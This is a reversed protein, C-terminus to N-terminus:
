RFGLFYGLIVGAVLTLISLWIIARKILKGYVDLGGSSYFWVGALGLM